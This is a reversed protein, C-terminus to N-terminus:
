MNTPLEDIHPIPEFIEKFDSKIKMKCKRLVDENILIEIHECIAGTVNFPEIREPIFKGSKLHDHCVLMLEISKM